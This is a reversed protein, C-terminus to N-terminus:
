SGAAKSETAKSDSAEPWIGIEKYFRIAGPHFETGTYRAANKENIANGAPHQKAIAKRNEWITKTLNYILDEDVDAHTILQMSGVNMAPFDAEMGTYTPKGEKTKAPIMASDFFEYKKILRARAADDYTIFHIDFSTCAQAVAPTPIAGGMFAADANDDGLLQVASTYVDNLPTIEDDKGTVSYNIGHEALLPGLFLEFGAGSPGVMVRKGKLDAITKIGSSKKTIFLGINPALTVVARIQYEKDWGGLGRTAYYSIASNSMGLQIEGKDLMRINQKSGSTSQSQVKWDNKGKFEDAVSAIANGVQNFAGGVPATGITVYRQGSYTTANDNNGTDCGVGVLIGLVGIMNLLLLLNLNLRTFM